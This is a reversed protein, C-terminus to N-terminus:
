DDTPPLVLACKGPPLPSPKRGRRTGLGAGADKRRGQGGKDGGRMPKEAELFKTPPPMPRGPPGIPGRPLGM